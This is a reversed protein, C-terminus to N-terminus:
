QVTVEEFIKCTPPPEPKGGADGEEEEAVLTPLSSVLRAENEALRERISRWATRVEHLAERSPINFQSALANAIESLSGEFLTIMKAALRGMERRADETRMYVGARAAREERARENALELQELRGRKLQDDIGAPTAADLRAGSPLPALDLRAKGNAGIRQAVDLGRKLQELAVSVRIRAHRGEGVLADGFIKKQSIWQSVRSQHVRTLDAFASKTVIDSM